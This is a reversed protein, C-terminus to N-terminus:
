RVAEPKQRKTQYLVVQNRGNQKAQLLALDAEKVLQCGRELPDLSVNNTDMGAVGISLTISLSRGEALSFEHTQLSSRIREAVELASIVPTQPLLVVFEEGGYRAVMDSGRLHQDIILAVEQLVLDGVQHGLDDNVQKFFDVDLFMCSLDFKYRVSSSVFEELRKEFFRRNYVCTLPDTMGVRELRTVNLANEICISVIAALRQLFDTSSSAQFRGAQKSGLNLSGILRGQRMLPILAVSALDENHPSFISQFQSSYSNLRPYLETGFWQEVQTRDAQLKLEPLQDQQLGTQDLFRLIEYDEDILMLSVADLEFVNRYNSVIIQILDRLSHTGILLLEMEAFRQMKEENLRANSLLGNLKQQLQQNQSELEKITKNM